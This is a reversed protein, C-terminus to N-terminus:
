GLNEPSQPLNLELRSNRPIVASLVLFRFWLGLAQVRGRGRVMKRRHQFKHALHGCSQFPYKSFVTAGPCGENSGGAPHTGAKWDFSFGPNAPSRQYLKGPSEEGGVLLTTIEHENRSFPFRKGLIALGPLSRGWALSTSQSHMALGPALSGPSVQARHTCLSVPLLRGLRSKHETLAYRSRSCAVWALSTSQSHMALGPALSGPSVQARHTCLSVPLLRGLRSKHETLAYRSRSCAVWALSTSQSHLRIPKPYISGSVKECRKRYPERIHFNQLKRNRDPFPLGRIRVLHEPCLVRM